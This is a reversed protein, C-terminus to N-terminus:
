FGLPVQNAAVPGDLPVGLLLAAAPQLMHALLLLVAHESERQLRPHLATYLQVLQQARSYCGPVSLGATEVASAAGSSTEWLKVGSAVCAALWFITRATLDQGPAIESERWPECATPAGGPQEVASELSLLHMCTNMTWAAVEKFGETSDQMVFCMNCTQYSCSEINTVRVNPM